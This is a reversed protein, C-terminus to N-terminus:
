VMLPHIVRIQVAHILFGKFKPSLTITILVVIGVNKV